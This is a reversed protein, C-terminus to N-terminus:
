DGKYPDSALGKLVDEWYKSYKEQSAEKSEEDPHTPRESQMVRYLEPHGPVPEPEHFEIELNGFRYKGKKM